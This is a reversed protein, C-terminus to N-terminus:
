QAQSALQEFPTQVDETKARACVWEVVNDELVLAEVEQLRQPQQFYWRVVEEPREYAGAMDEIVARIQEPKATLQESRVLESLILGLAVRRKAQDEFLEDPLAFNLSKQGRAAFDNLMSERLRGIEQAVLAQPLPLQTVDLLAQMARDKVMGKIRNRMERELNRRLESRLTELSGDSVGVSRAFDSNLEPVVPEEVAHLIVDFRVTKGALDASHYDAPFTLDFSHNAGAELGEVQAEFDALFQGQGLVLRHGKAQGGAFPQGDLFGDFDLTVQDGKQAARSAPQYRTRQQRLVDVTRDVDADTIEAVPRQISVASVDGVKVEPYVEFTATFEFMGEAGGAKPEFRPAGAVRLNQERVADSFQGQALESLADQHVQGGYQQVVLKMPVKGPRFGQMRATKAIQKLRVNVEADVKSLPVALQLTRELSNSQVTEM